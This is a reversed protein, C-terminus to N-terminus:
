QAPRSARAAAMTIRVTRLVTLVPRVTTHVMWWGDMSMKSTHLAVAKDECPAGRLEARSWCSQQKGFQMQLSTARAVNRQLSVRTIPGLASSM